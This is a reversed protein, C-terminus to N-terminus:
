GLSRGLGPPVRQLCMAQPRPVWRSIYSRLWFKGLMGWPSCICNTIDLSM